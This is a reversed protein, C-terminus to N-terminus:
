GCFRKSVAEYACANDLRGARQQLGFMDALWVRACAAQIDHVPLGTRRLRCWNVYISLTPRALRGM